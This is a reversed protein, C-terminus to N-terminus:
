SDKGSEGGKGKPLALTIGAVPSFKAITKDVEGTLVHRYIDGTTAIRTHGLIESILKLDAGSALAYTAFYHRLKHISFPRVGARRALRKLM